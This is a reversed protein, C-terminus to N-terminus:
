NKNGSTAEFLSMASAPKAKAGASKLTTSKPRSSTASRATASALAAQETKNPAVAKAKNSQTKADQAAALTVGGLLIASTFLLKKM